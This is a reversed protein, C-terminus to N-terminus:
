ASAVLGKDEIKPPMQWDHAAPFSLLYTVGKGPDSEVEITGGSLAVFRYVLSLSFGPNRSGPRSQYYPDFVREKASARIGKGTDHVAIQVAASGPAFAITKTAIEVQAVESTAAKRAEAVLSFLCEHLGAPDALISPAGPELTLQLSRRLTTRVKAELESLVGNVDVLSAAGPEAKGLAILRQLISQQEASRQYAESLLHLVRGESEGIARQLSSDIRAQSEALERGLGVSMLTLCNMKQLQTNQQEARRRATIDRFALIIGLPWEQDRNVALEAEVLVPTFGGRNRLKFTRPGADLERGDLLADLPHIVPLDTAEDFAQFVDLLPQGKAEEGDWGTLRAAAANMFAINGRNDTTILADAAYRFTASLWAESVRLKQEMEHKWLAVEIQARFDVNHFPKVIYGFPETIKARDLTERDAHATVFMVPLHFRRRILDAAEIGDQAGRLRIDMLVMSPQHREIGLLADEATDAIFPVGYGVQELRTKLELAILAEDEVVLITTKM